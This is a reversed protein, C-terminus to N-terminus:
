KKLKALAEAKNHTLTHPIDVTTLVTGSVYLDEAMELAGVVVADNYWPSNGNRIGGVTNPWLVVDANACKYLSLYSAWMGHHALQVMDSKLYDGYMNEIIRGSFHTTDALLLISQGCANIRIVLSTSNVYDFCETPLCDEVSFLIEVEVSGFRMTQGNHAKILQAEPIYERSKKVIDEVLAKNDEVTGDKRKYSYMEAPAYNYVVREVKVEAGHNEIFEEFGWQHDGHPHSHFWAAIVINNPDPALSRIAEYMYDKKDPYRDGGDQVLFRGDPLLFIYGQGCNTRESQGVMTLSPSYKEEFSGCDEDALLSIDGFIVRATNNYEVYYAYAFIQDKVFTRFENDKISKSNKEEYGAGALASCYLDFQERTTDKACIMSCGNGCDIMDLAMGNYSPIQFDKM